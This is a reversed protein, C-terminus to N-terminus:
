WSEETPRHHLVDDFLAPADPEESRTLGALMTLSPSEGGAIVADLGAQILRDSGVNRGFARERAIHSLEELVDDRTM